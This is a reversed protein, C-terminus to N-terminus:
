NEVEKVRFEDRMLKPLSLGNRARVLTRVAGNEKGYM